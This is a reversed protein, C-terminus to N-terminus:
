KKPKTPQLTMPNERFPKGAKYSALEAELSKVVAPEKDNLKQKVALRLAQQVTAVADPLRGSEAFAASQTGLIVVNQERSLKVAWGALEVAEGGNRIAADPCTAMAWALQNVTWMNQAKQLAIARRWAVVAEKFNGQRYLANGLNSVLMADHPRVAAAKRFYAIAEDFRGDDALMCALKNAVEASNPYMKMTDGLLKMAEDRKGCDILTLAFNNRTNFDDPKIKLSERMLKLAQDTRGTGALALALNNRAGMHKPNIDLVHALRRIAEKKKGRQYLLWGLNNNAGEADPAIDIALQYERM